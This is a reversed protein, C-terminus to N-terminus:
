DSRPMLDSLRGPSPRQPAGPPADRDRLVNAASEAVEAEPLQFEFRHQGIEFSDGPELIQWGGGIGGAEISTLRTFMHLMLHNGRVWVRAEETALEPDAICVGCRPGAGVSVPKGGVAYEKGADNGARSILRGLVRGIDEQVPEAESTEVPEGAAARKAAVQQAWSKTRQDAPIPKEPRPKRLKMVAFLAVGAVMAVVVLAILLIPPGGGASPPPVSSLAVESSVAAAGDGIAARVTHEGEAFRAPDYTFAYPPTTQELVNVGDVYWSVRPTGISINATIERPLTLSEGAAVGALAITPLFTPGPKYLAEASSVAVGAKVTIVVHVGDSASAASADFTVIFQSRLLRGISVYLANLDEPRPAQLMRGKTVDAVQQLYPLDLQTGAAITFFAVGASAAGAIAEARSAISVGGADAGDSLLVVARRSAPSTSIKVAGAATAQYLATNGRAVLSDIAATITARDSTFDQTLRVEDGFSILAIRDQAGLEAILAKAAAKASALPAGEMSGSTDVIALLDLPADESAALDASVVTTAQGDITVTFDDRTLATGGAGSTNEIGVIARANPYADDGVSTITVRLQPEQAHATLSSVAIPALLLALLTAFKHIFNM